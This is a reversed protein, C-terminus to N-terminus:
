SRGTTKRNGLVGLVRRRNPRRRAQGAHGPAIRGNYGGSAAICRWRSCHRRQGASPSASADAAGSARTCYVAPSTLLLLRLLPVRVRARQGSVCLRLVSIGLRASRLSAARRCSRARHAAGPGTGGSAAPCPRQPVRRLVLRYLLVPLFVQALSPAVQEIRWLQRILQSSYAADPVALDPAFRRWQILHRLTRRCVPM